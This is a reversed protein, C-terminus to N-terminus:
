CKQQRRQSQLELKASLEKINPITVHHTGGAHHPPSPALWQGAPHRHRCPIPAPFRRIPSLPRAPRPPPAPVPPRPATKASSGRSLRSRLRSINTVQVRSGARAKPTGSQFILATEASHSLTFPKLSRIPASHVTSTDAGSAGLLDDCISGSEFEMRAIRSDREM